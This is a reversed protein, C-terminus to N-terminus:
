AHAVSDKYKLMKVESYPNMVYNWHDRIRKSWEVDEGQCWSRREDLPNALMFSKKAVWYAGSIYMFQTETYSYDVLRMGVNPLDWTVWDRYRTGDLNTIVNMCVDFDDGFKLFGEYWGETLVMYDHMYVINENTAAHTIISKKLTIWAPRMNEDFPIHFAGGNPEGGVVIIEPNPVNDNISKIITPVRPNGTTVIGFTFRM